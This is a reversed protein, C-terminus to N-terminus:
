RFLNLFDNWVDETFNGIKNLGTEIDTAVDSYNREGEGHLHRIYEKAHTGIRVIESDKATENREGLLELKHAAKYMEQATQKNNEDIGNKLKAYDDKVTDILKNVEEKTVNKQKDLETKAENELKQYDTKAENWKTGVNGTFMEIGNGNSNSQANTVAASGNSSNMNTRGTNASNKGCGSLISGALLMCVCLSFIKKM